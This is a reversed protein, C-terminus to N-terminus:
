KPQKPTDSSNTDSSGKSHTKLRPVPVPTGTLTNLGKPFTPSEFWDTLLHLEAATLGFDSKRVMSLKTPSSMSILTGCNGLKGELARLWAVCEGKPDLQGLHSAFRFLQCVFLWSEIRQGTMEWDYAIVNTAGVVQHLLEVPITQNTVSNPVLGAMVFRTGENTAPRLYPEFVPFDSWVAGESNTSARFSGFGDNTLWSNAKILQKTTNDLFAKVDPVALAVYTQFPMGQQSWIFVQDPAAGL